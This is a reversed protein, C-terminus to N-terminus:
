PAARGAADAVREAGDDAGCHVVSSLEALADCASVVSRHDNSSSTAWAIL